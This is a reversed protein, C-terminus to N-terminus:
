HLHLGPDRIGNKRRERKLIYPQTNIRFAHTAALGNLEVSVGSPQRDFRSRSRTVMALSTREHLPGSSQFDNGRGTM